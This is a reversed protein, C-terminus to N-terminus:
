PPRSAGSDIYWDNSRKGSDVSLYVASFAIKSENKNRDQKESRCERGIHGKKGCNYCKLRKKDDSKNKNKNLKKGSFFASESKTSGYDGDLLKARIIEGTIQSNSSEIGMIFPKYDDTLGALMIAGLWEESIPFDIGGLKNSTDTLQNVYETMSECNELRTTILKRLLGIKRTVGSDDYLKSLKQWIGIATTETRIHTYVSEDISLVIKAKAQRLKTADTEAVPDSICKDLDNFELLNVMAFKWTHFNEGGRLKDIAINKSM